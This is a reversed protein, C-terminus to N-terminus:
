LFYYKNDFEFLKNKILANFYVFNLFVFLAFLIFLQALKDKQPPKKENLIFIDVFNDLMYSSIVSAIIAVLFLLYLKSKIIRIFSKGLPIKSILTRHYNYFYVLIGLSLISTLFKTVFMPITTFIKIPFSLLISASSIPTACVTLSWIFLTLKFGHNVGNKIGYFLFILLFLISIMKFYVVEISNMRPLNVEHTTYLYDMYFYM